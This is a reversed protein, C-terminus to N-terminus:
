LVSMTINPRNISGVNKILLKTASVFRIRSYLDISDYELRIFLPFSSPTSFALTGFAKSLIKAAEAGEAKSDINRWTGNTFALLFRNGKHEQSMQLLYASPSYSANLLINLFEGGAFVMAFVKNSRESSIFKKDVMAFMTANNDTGNYDTGNVHIINNKDDGITFAMNITVSRALSPAIFVLLIFFIPLAFKYCSPYFIDEPKNRKIYSSSVFCHNRGQRVKIGM